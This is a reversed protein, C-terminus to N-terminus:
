PTVSEILGQLDVDHLGVTMLALTGRLEEPDINRTVFVMRTRRDVSPWRELEIPPHFVHQVGHVVVPADHGVLNVIGKVRLLDAGKFMTLLGLWRDFALPELPTDFTLCTARIGADHRNVDHHHHHHHGAHAAEHALWRNVDESKSAPDWLGVDFLSASDVAGNTVPIIPAGPNLAALRDRIAQQATEDALDTKTLLLRDAVAAQKVAEPQADLTAMGAAADVTAIVADLRYLPELQPDTMLTHLIPAPDALGTTEIVVRDFWCEGDRAFRWPADRLTRSLDGRITCCLCGGMMEVVLDENSRAILEHDLGVAGFENIVVLARAMGPSRVLHNLVTTKGSGLFGTLVSVPIRTGPGEPVSSM